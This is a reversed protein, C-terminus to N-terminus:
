YLFIDKNGFSYFFVVYNFRREDSIYQCGAIERLSKFSSTTHKKEVNLFTDFLKGCFVFTWYKASNRSAQFIQFKQHVHFCEM